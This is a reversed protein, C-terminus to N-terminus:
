LQKIKKMDKEKVGESTKKTGGRSKIRRSYEERKKKRRRTDRDSRM